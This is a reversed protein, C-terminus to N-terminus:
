PNGWTHAMPGHNASGEWGEAEEFDKGFLTWENRVHDTRQQAPRWKWHEAFEDPLTGELMLAIYHGLRPLFKFGHSSGSNFLLIWSSMGGTAIYLGKLDPHPAILFHLDPTDVCWCVRLDFFEHDALSPVTARMGRRLHEVAEKPIGDEPHDAQTRPAGSITYGSSLAAFKMVGNDFPEFYYINWKSDDVVPIGAYRKHEEPTLQIHAICHGKPVLQGKTDILSNTWAGACLVVKDAYFKSGAKTEVGIVNTKATDYLL